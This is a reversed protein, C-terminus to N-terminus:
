QIVMLIWRLIKGSSFQAEKVPSIKLLFMLLEQETKAYQASLYDYPFYMLLMLILFHLSLSRKM